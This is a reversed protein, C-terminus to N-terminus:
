ANLHFIMWYSFGAIEDSLPYHYRANNHADVLTNSTDSGLNSILVTHQPVHNSDEFIVIDGHEAQSVSHNVDRVVGIDVLYDALTRYGSLPTILLLDYVENNYISRYRYYDSQPADAGLGPMLGGRALARAVFEACQFNPQPDGNGVRVGCPEGTCNWHLDAWDIEQDRWSETVAVQANRPTTTETHNPGYTAAEVRLPGIAVVLTGVFVVVSMGVQLFVKRTIM